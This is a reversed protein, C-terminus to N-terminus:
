SLAEFLYNLYNLKLYNVPCLKQTIAIAHNDIVNRYQLGGSCLESVKKAPQQIQMERRVERM